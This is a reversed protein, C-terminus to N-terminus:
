LDGSRYKAYVMIFKKKSDRTYEVRKGNSLEFYKKEVKRIHNLNILLHSNFRYFEKANLLREFQILSIYMEYDQYHTYILVKNRRSEVYVIDNHKLKIDTNSYTIEIENGSIIRRYKEYFNELDKDLRSKRIFFFTRQCYSEYVFCDHSSIYVLVLHPYLFSLREGIAFSEKDGLMVDLFLIDETGNIIGELYEDFVRINVNNFIDSLKDKLLNGFKLDDDIIMVNM